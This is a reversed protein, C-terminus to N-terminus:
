TDYGPAAVHVYRDAHHPNLMNLCGLRRAASLQGDRSLTELVVFFNDLDTIRGFMAAVLDERLSGVIGSVREPFM